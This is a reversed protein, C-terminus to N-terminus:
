PMKRKPIEPEFSNQHSILESKTFVLFRSASEEPEWLAWVRPGTRVSGWSYGTSSSKIHRWQVTYQTNRSSPSQTESVKTVKSRICDRSHLLQDIEIVLTHTALGPTSPKSKFNTVWGTVLHLDTLVWRPEANAGPHCIAHLWRELSLLFTLNYLVSTLTVRGQSLSWFNASHIIIM